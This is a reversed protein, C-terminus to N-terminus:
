FQEREEEMKKQLSQREEELLNCMDTYKNRLEQMRLQMTSNSDNGYKKM